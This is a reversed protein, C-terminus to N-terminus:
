RRGSDFAKILEGPYGLAEVRGCGLLMPRRMGNRTAKASNSPPLEASDASGARSLDLSSSLRVLECRRGCTQSDQQFPDRPGPRKRM